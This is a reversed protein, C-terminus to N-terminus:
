EGHFYVTLIPNSIQVSHRGGSLGVIKGLHLQPALFNSPNTRTVTFPPVLPDAHRMLFCFENFSPVAIGCSGCRFEFIAIAIQISNVAFLSCEFNNNRIESGTTM